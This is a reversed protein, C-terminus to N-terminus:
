TTKRETNALASRASILQRANWEQGVGDDFCDLMGRLAERLEKIQEQMQRPTLGTEHYVAGAEAILRADAETFCGQYDLRRMHIGPKSADPWYVCWGPEKYTGLQKERWPGKTPESM